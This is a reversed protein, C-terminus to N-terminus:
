GVFVGDALIAGDFVSLVQDPSPDPIGVLTSALFVRVEAPDSEGSGTFLAGRGASKGVTLRIGGRTSPDAAFFNAVQALEDIEDLSSFPGAALLKTGDFVRVRPAGGPGGGFVLDARGDGTLDGLTVNAGNRLSDEFAFFDGVLKPPAGTATLGAGDFLAERPGGLFGASVLIDGKGDGNVDGVSARAGGRFVPDDIGFFRSIQANENLGAALKAGDYVAVVPGGGQDPTVILDAKGDGNVDGAVVFVGGTFTLEYPFFDAVKAGTTGDYIIVNPGGGPGAGGVLDPTGDGTLDATATRVSGHFTPFFTQKGPFPVQPNSPDFTTGSGDDSGGIQIDGPKAVAFGVPGSGLLRSVQYSTTSPNSVSDYTALLIAGDPQYSPGTLYSISPLGDALNVLGDGGFHVDSHGTPNLRIAGPYGLIVV